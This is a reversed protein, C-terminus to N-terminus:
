ANWLRKEKTGLSSKLAEKADDDDVPLSLSLSLFFLWAPLLLGGGGGGGGDDDDHADDM